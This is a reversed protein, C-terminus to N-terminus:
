TYTSRGQTAKRGGIFEEELRSRRRQLPAHGKWDWMGEKEDKRGGVLGREGERALAVERAGEENVENVREDEKSGRKCIGIEEM